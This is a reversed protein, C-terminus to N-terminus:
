KKPKPTQKADANQNNSNSPEPLAPITESAPKERLSRLLTLETEAAIKEKEFAHRADRESKVDQSLQSVQTELAPIMEQKVRLRIVEDQAARLSEVAKQLQSEASTRGQEILGQKRRYEELEDKTKKNDSELDQIRGTLKPIAELQLKLRVNEDQSTRLTESVTTLQSEAAQARSEAAAKGQEALSQKARCDALDGKTQELNQELLKIQTGASANAQQAEGLLKLAEALQQEMPELVAIRSNLRQSEAEHQEKATANESQLRECEGMFMAKEQRIEDLEVLMQQRESEVSTKVITVTRARQQDRYQIASKEFFEEDEPSFRFQIGEKEKQQEERFRDVFKQYTLKSGRNFKNYLDLASPRPKGAAILEEIVPKVEDYDLRPAYRRQPQDEVETM